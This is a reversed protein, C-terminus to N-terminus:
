IKVSLVDRIKTTDRPPLVIRINQDAVRTVFAEPIQCSCSTLELQLPDINTQGMTQQKDPLNSPRSLAADVRGSKRHLQRLRVGLAAINHQGSEVAQCHEASIMELARKNVLV